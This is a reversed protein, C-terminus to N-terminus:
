LNEIPVPEVRDALEFGFVKAYFLLEADLARKMNEARRFGHGEGAFPIYAVPLGKKRLVEVMREAQNPLVIKDELGQFFIVPCNLRETHHIPSRERYTAVGDPYPAVLGEEYRSEFKHPNGTRADKAMIELDSIGYYSAGAKFVDRFTLACLTTYGGASGGTIVLRAGDAAGRGVLYKAANTCDDVDVIGWQGKLRERYARGYGTSGGYNVDVVAFGRSTWYQISLAFTSSTAATPGGHSRVILPPREGEPATFDRNKPTYYFAHATRGRETEFEIAEPVSLYGADFSLETARRLVVAERTALDLKVFAAPATPSGGAFLVFGPGGRVGSISTFPVNLPEFALTRTDLIGLRWAGRDAYACAMRDEGVFAYTAMGFAWQPVGFEAPRACLPEVAGDRWRYLNWWDTRDSVFYLSGDPGWTPQFVSEGPGGAIKVSQSVAGDPGLHGVWLEAADWPMDPHNWTLWALQTGDPSLRPSAYFDNGAVLVRGGRDDGELPVAVITNVDETSELLRKDERVALLLGRRADVVYDAYRLPAEPTLPRPDRGPDQRYIRQDAFNSFYVTGRDVAYDGGGYEHVRTRVNFGPPTCDTVTGDPARHVLVNRGGETPRGETWYIDDGDRALQGLATSKSVILDSTIPSKWSGFPAVTASVRPDAAKM